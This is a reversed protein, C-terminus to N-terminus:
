ENVKHELPKLYLEAGIQGEFTKTRKHLFCDHRVDAGGRGLQQVWARAILVAGAGEAVLVDQLQGAVSLLEVDQYALLLDRSVQVRRLPAKIGDHLHSHTPYAAVVGVIVFFFDDEPFDNSDPECNM